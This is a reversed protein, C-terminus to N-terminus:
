RYQKQINYKKYFEDNIYIHAELTPLNSLEYILFRQRYGVGCNIYITKTYNPQLPTDSYGILYSYDDGFVENKPIEIFDVKVKISKSLSSNSINRFQLTIQPVFLESGFDPRMGWGTSYDVLRIGVSQELERVVRVANYATRYRNLAQTATEILDAPHDQKVYTNLMAIAEEIELRGADRVIQNLNNRERQYIATIEANSERILKEASAILSSIPFKAKLKNMWEIAQEFNKNSFENAGTQYYYQDTEKLREIEEKLNKNETELSLVQTSLREITMELQSIKEQNCSVFVMFIFIIAGAKSIRLTLNNM